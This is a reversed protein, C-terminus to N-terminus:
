EANRLRAIEKMQEIIKRVKRQAENGINFAVLQGGKVNQKATGSVDFGGQAVERIYISGSVGSFSGWTMGTTFSVIGSNADAGDVKYGAAMISRVALDIVMQRSGTFSNNVINYVVKQEELSTQEVRKDKIIPAGCGICVPGKDSIERGCESCAILAM